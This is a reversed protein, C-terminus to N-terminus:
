SQQELFKRKLQKEPPKWKKDGKRKSLNFTVMVNIVFTVYKGLFFCVRSIYVLLEQAFPEGCEGSTLFTM